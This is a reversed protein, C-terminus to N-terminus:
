LRIIEFEVRPNDKCYGGSQTKLSQVHDFSDDVFLGGSVFGDMIFKPVYNDADRKHKTGFYYTIIVDCKDILLNGYKYYAVLWDGLEKWKQKENNMQHRPM